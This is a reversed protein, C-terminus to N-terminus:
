KRFICSEDHRVCPDGYEDNEEKGFSDAYM